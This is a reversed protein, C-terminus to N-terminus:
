RSIGRARDRGLHASWRPAPGRLPPPPNQALSDRVDLQALRELERQRAADMETL